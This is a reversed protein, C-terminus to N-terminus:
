DRRPHRCRDSSRIMGVCEGKLTISAIRTQATVDPAGLTSSRGQGGRAVEARDAISLWITSALTQIPNWKRLESM